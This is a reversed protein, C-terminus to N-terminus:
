VAEDNREVRKAALEDLKADVTARATGALDGRVKVNTEPESEGLAAREAKQLEALKAILKATTELLDQTSMTTLDAAMRGDLARAILEQVPLTVVRAAAETQGAQREVMRVKRRIVAARLLRDQEDDWAGARSYWKFNARWDNFQGTPDNGAPIAGGHLTRYEREAAVTSRGPGMDRYICFAQFALDTENPQREWPMPTANM